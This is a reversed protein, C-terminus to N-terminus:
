AKGGKPEKPAKPAKGGKPAPAAQAPPAAGPQRVELWHGGIYRSIQAVTLYTAQPRNAQEVTMTPKGVLEPPTGIHCRLRKFAARGAPKQYPLMGRVTRKVMLHPQRNYFPGKRRTGVEAKWLYLEKIADVNPGTVIAKEANVVHVREGKLLRKAIDTAMRGLVLNSADIVTEVGSDQM